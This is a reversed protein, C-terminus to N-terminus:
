VQSIFAYQDKTYFSIAGFSYNVLSEISDSKKQNSPLGLQYNQRSNGLLVTGSYRIKIYRCEIWSFFLTPKYVLYSYNSHM